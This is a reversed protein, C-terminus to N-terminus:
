SNAVVRVEFLRPWLKGTVFLRKSAADYAIGNLVADERETTETKPLRDRLGSADIWGLVEGTQPSIRVIRDTQWVNAYIEGEVYELENIKPVARGHDLVRITGAVRFTAPDLIRILSTGDSLYLKKGDQTLGWGEDSYTFSKRYTLSARDFVLGVRNQWTLQLIADDWVAIGEGFYDQRLNSQLLVKGTILEVQRLSSSGYQGTSEYLKDDAYLLGQCFARSDHPFAAVVELKQAARPERRAAALVAAVGGASGALASAIWARRSLRMDVSYGM